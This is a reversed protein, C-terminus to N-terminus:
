KPRQGLRRVAAGILARATVLWPDGDSLEVSSVLCAAATMMHVCGSIWEGVYVQGGEGAM